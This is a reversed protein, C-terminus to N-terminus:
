NEHLHAISCILQMELQKNGINCKNYTFAFIAVSWKEKTFCMEAGPNTKTGSFLEFSHM